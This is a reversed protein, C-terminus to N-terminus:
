FVDRRSPRTIRVDGNFTSARIRASGGGGLVFRKTTRTMNSASARSPPVLTMPGGSIDGTFTSVDIQGAASSPLRLTIDGSHTDLEWEADEPLDSTLSIEGSTVKVSVRRARDASLVVDGSVTSVDIDGRIQRASIDGSTSTARFDGVGGEARIDGSLTELIARGGIGHVAVDGSIVKIDVDGTIDFVAVDISAGHVIVKTARPVRLEIDEGDGRSRRGTNGRFENGINVTIGAASRRLAYGAGDARLEADRSDTGRVVLHGTRLTVDVVSNREVVFVTDAARGAFSQAHTASTCAVVSTMAGILIAVGSPHWTLRAHRATCTM